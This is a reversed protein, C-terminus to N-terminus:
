YMHIMMKKVKWRDVINKKQHMVHILKKKQIVVVMYQIVLVVYFIRLKAFIFIFDFDFAFLILVSFEKAEKALGKSKGKLTDFKVQLTELQGKISSNERLLMDIAKECKTHFEGLEGVTVEQHKRWEENHIFEFMRQRQREEESPEMKFLWCWFSKYRVLSSLHSAFIFTSFSFQITDIGVQEYM